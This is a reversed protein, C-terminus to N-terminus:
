EIVGFNRENIRRGPHDGVPYHKALWDFKKEIPTRVNILIKGEVKNQM